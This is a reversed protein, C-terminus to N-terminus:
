HDCINDGTVLNGELYTKVLSEPEDAPAGVVVEINNSVFLQQARQGMGGAIILNVGNEALWKPLVGPEHMPPTMLQKNTITKTDADVDIVAFEECHGFHMCLKGGAIPIAIKMKTQEKISTIEKDLELLPKFAHNITQATPTQSHHNIFPKGIDAAPGMDADIPISGLFPVNFEDAMEKGGDYGFINTKKGCHPCVFGSMNEVVGLVPLKLQDCFTLCKKVDTVAVQQPTTVVVAGDPNDLLQIISLPEDGTGPPCDVVLYDLEGWDVDKVFQNIVNHKMPGRWVVADKEENLIFGVSVVKLSESYQVPGIRDGLAQLRKGELNLLKPVSPGHVDVDLLGVKKGQMSLWVALNVAISSKGVCGKGSLVLVQHKINKINKSIQEQEQQMQLHQDLNSQCSDKSM